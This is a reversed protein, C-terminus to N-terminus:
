RKVIKFKPPEIWTSYCKPCRRPKSPKKLNTFVFGCKRCQPPQMVLIKRGQSLARVSKAVHTIDEYLRRREKGKIELIYALEDVTMFHDSEELIKMIKERRTLQNEAYEEM